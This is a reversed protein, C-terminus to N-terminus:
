LGANSNISANELTLKVNYVWGRIVPNISEILEFLSLPM